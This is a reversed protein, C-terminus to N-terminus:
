ENDSDDSEVDREYWDDKEGEAIVGETVGQIQRQLRVQMANPMDRYGSFDSLEEDNYEDEVESETDEEEEESSSEYEDEDDDDDAVNEVAPPNVEVCRMCLIEYRGCRRCCTDVHGEVVHHKSCRRPYHFICSYDAEEDKESKELTKIFAGFNVTLKRHVEPDSHCRMYSNHLWSMTLQREILLSQYNYEKSRRLVAVRVTRSLTPDNRFLDYRRLADHDEKSGESFEQIRQFIEIPLRQIQNKRKALRPNERCSVIALMGLQCNLFVNDQKHIDCRKHTGSYEVMQRDLMESATTGDTLPIMDGPLEPPVEAQEEEEEDSDDGGGENHNNDEESEEENESTNEPDVYDNIVVQVIEDEDTESDSSSSSSDSSENLRAFRRNRPQLHVSSSDSDQSSTLGSCSSSSSSSTSSASSSSSSSHESYMLSSNSSRTIWKKPM